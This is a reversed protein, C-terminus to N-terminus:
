FEFLAPQETKRRTAEEEKMQRREAKERELRAQTRKRYLWEKLRNLESIQYDTISDVAIDGPTEAKGWRCCTKTTIYLYIQAWCSSSPSFRFSSNSLIFSSVGLIIFRSVM